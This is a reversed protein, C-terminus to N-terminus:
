HKLLPIKLIDVGVLELFVFAFILFLLGVVAAILQDRGEKISEPKGQSTMIKYGARIILILAIAGSVSLLVGFVAGIFGAADTKINGFATNFELCQGAKSDKPPATKGIACPPATNSHTPDICTKYNKAKPNDVCITGSVCDSNDFKPDCKGGPQNQSECVGGASCYEGENPCDLSKNKPDCLAGSAGKATCNGTSSGPADPSCVADGVCATESVKCDAGIRTNALAQCEFHKGEDNVDVCTTGSDCSGSTGLSTDGCTEQATSINLLPSIFLFALQSVLFFGLFLINKKVDKANCIKIYKALLISSM